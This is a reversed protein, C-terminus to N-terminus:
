RLRFNSNAIASSAKEVAKSLGEVSKRVQHLSGDPADESERWQSIDVPIELTPLAGHPGNADVRIQVLQPQDEAMLDASIGLDWHIERHPALSRLGDALTSQLKVDDIQWNDSAPLAPSFTVRVDTAVTPGSNGVVLQLVSGQKADPQLDAWVYPQTAENAIERQLRTQERSVEVQDRQIGTQVEVSKAQRWTAYAAWGAFLMAGLSIFFAIFPLADM